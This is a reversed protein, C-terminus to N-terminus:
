EEFISSIIGLRSIFDIDVLNLGNYLVAIIFWIFNFSSVNQSINIENKISEILYKIDIHNSKGCRHVISDCYEFCDHKPNDIDHTYSDCYEECKHDNEFETYHWVCKYNYHFQSILTSIEFTYKPSTYETEVHSLKFLYKGLSIETHSKFPLNPNEVSNSWERIGDINDIINSMMVIEPYKEIKNFIIKKKFLQDCKNAFQNVSQQFDLIENKTATQKESFCDLQHKINKLLQECQSLSIM